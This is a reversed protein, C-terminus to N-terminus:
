KKQSFKIIDIKAIAISFIYFIVIEFGILIHHFVSQIFLITVVNTFLLKMTPKRFQCYSMHSMRDGKQWLTHGQPFWTLDCAEDPSCQITCIYSFHRLFQMLTLIFEIKKYYVSKYM